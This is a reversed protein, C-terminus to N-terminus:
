RQPIPGVTATAGLTLTMYRVGLRYDRLLGLSNELLPRGEDGDACGAQTRIRPGVDEAAAMRMQQPHEAAQQYVADILELRAGRKM